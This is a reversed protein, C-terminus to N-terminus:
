FDLFLYTKGRSFKFETPNGLELAPGLVLNISDGNYHQNIHFGRISLDCSRLSWLLEVTRSVSIEGQMDTSHLAFKCQVKAKPVQTFDFNKGYEKKAEAENVKVLEVMWANQMQFVIDSILRGSIINGRFETVENGTMELMRGHSFYKKTEGFTKIIETLKERTTVRRPWDVLDHKLIDEPRIISIMSVPLIAM